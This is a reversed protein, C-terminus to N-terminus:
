TTPRPTSPGHPRSRRTAEPEPSSACSPNRLRRRDIQGRCMATPERPALGCAAVLAEAHSQALWRGLRERVDHIADPDIVPAGPRDGERGAAYRSRACLATSRDTASCGAVLGGCLAVGPSREFDAPAMAASVLLSLAAAPMGAALRRRRAMLFALDEPSRGDRAASARLLRAAGVGGGSASAKSSSPRRRTASSSCNARRPPKRAGPMTGVLRLPLAGTRSCGWPSPLHLPQDAGAIEFTTAPYDQALELTYRQRAADYDGRASLRPTGAQLYWREFQALDRGNADAIAARFDDCTVAEGDHREFYRDMGKRFGDDGV